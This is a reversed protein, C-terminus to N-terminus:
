EAPKAEIEKKAEDLEKSLIDLVGEQEAVYQQGVRLLVRAREWQVHLFDITQMDDFLTKIAVEAEQESGNRVATKASAAAENLVKQRAIKSMDYFVTHAHKTGKDLAQTAIRQTPM